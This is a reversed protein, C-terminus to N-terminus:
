SIRRVTPLYRKHGGLGAGNIPYQFNSNPDSSVIYVGNHPTSVLILQQDSIKVINMKVGSIGGLGEASTIDGIPISGNLNLRNNNIEYFDVLVQIGEFRQNNYAPASSCVAIRNNDLAVIGSIDYRYIDFPLSYRKINILSNDNDLQGTIIKKTPEYVGYLDRNILDFDSLKISTIKTTATQLNNPNIRIGYFGEFGTVFVDINNGNIIAKLGEFSMGGPNQVNITLARPINNEVLLVPLGVSNDVPLFYYHVGNLSVDAIKNSALITNDYNRQRPLEAQYIIQGNKRFLSVLISSYHRNPYYIGTLLYSDNGIKAVGRMNFKDNISRITEYPTFTGNSDEKTEQITFIRNTAGTGYDLLSGFLIGELDRTSSLSSYSTIINPRGKGIIKEIKERVRINQQGEQHNPNYLYEQSYVIGENKQPSSPQETAHIQSLSSLAYSIILAGGIRSLARLFERRNMEGIKGGEQKNM